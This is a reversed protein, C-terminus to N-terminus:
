QSSIIKFGNVGYGNVCEEDAGKQIHYGIIGGLVTGGTSGGCQVFQGTKDNKLVTIPTACASLTFLIALLSYKM